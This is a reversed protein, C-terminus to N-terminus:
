PAASVSITSTVTGAPNTFTVPGSQAGPPVVVKLLDQCSGSNGIPMVEWGQTVEVGGAFSVKTVEQLRGTFRAEEGVRVPWTSQLYATPRPAIIRFPMPSTIQQNLGKVTVPGTIAWKPIYFSIQSNSGSAFPSTAPAGTASAMTVTATTTGGGVSPDNILARGRVVAQDCAAGSDPELALIKPTVQVTLDPGANIPRDGGGGVRYTFSAQGLHISSQAQQLVPSLKFTLRNYSKSVIPMPQSGLTVMTVNQMAKGTVIVEGDPPVNMPGAPDFTALEVFDEATLVGSVMIKGTVDGPPVYVNILTGTGDVVQSYGVNTGNAFDVGPNPVSFGSGSIIVRDGQRGEKPSFSTIIANNTPPPPSSTGASPPPARMVIEGLVPAQLTATVPSTVPQSPVLKPSGVTARLTVTQKLAVATLTGEGAAIAAVLARPGDGKVQLPETSQWEVPTASLDVARGRGDVARLELQARQGPELQLVGGTPISGEVPVIQLTVGSLKQARATGSLLILAVSLLSGLRLPPHVPM